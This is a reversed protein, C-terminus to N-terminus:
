EGRAIEKGLLSGTLAGLGGTLAGIVCTILILMSSSQGLGMIMSIRPALIGGNASNISVTLILWLIFL